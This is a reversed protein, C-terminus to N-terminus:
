RADAEKGITDLNTRAARVAAILMDAAEERATQDTARMMLAADELLTLATRAVTLATMTHGKPQSSAIAQNPTDLSVVRWLYGHGDWETAVPVEAVTFAPHGDVAGDWSENIFLEVNCEGAEDMRHWAGHVPHLVVGASDRVLPGSWEECGETCTVRCAAGPQAHCVIRADLSGRDWTVVLSHDSM